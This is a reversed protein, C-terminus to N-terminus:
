KFAESDMLNVKSAVLLQLDEWCYKLRKRDSAPVKELLQQCEAQWDGVEPVPLFSLGIAGALGCSLEILAPCDFIRLEPDTEDHKCSIVREFLPPLNWKRVLEVGAERHDLGFSGREHELLRETSEPVAEFIVSYKQPASTILAIRGIEHLLGATYAEAPDIYVKDAIEEALIATALTHRWSSRLAPASASNGMIGRMGVTLAMGKVRDIGILALAQSISRVEAMAGIMASNALRLVEVSFAPDASITNSIEKLGIDKRQMLQMLKTIVTPLPPLKALLALGDKRSPPPAAAVAPRAQGFVSTSSRDSVSTPSHQVIM